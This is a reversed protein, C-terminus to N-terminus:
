DSKPFRVNQTVANWDYNRAYADVASDFVFILVIPFISTFVSRKFSLLTSNVSKGFRSVSGDTDYIDTKRISKKYSKIIVSLRHNTTCFFCLIEWVRRMGWVGILLEQTKGDYQQILFRIVNFFYFVLTQRKVTLIGISAIYYMKKREYVVERNSM